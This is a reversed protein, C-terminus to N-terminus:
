VISTNLSPVDSAVPTVIVSVSGPPVVSTDVDPHTSSGSPKGIQEMPVIGAPLEAITVTM